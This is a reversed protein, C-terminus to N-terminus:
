RLSGVLRLRFGCREPVFFSLFVAWEAIRPSQAAGRSAELWRESRFGQGFVLSLERGSALVAAPDRSAPRAARTHQDPRYRTHPGIVRKKTSSEMTPM